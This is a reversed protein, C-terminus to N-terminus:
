PQWLSRQVAPSLVVEGRHVREFNDLLEALDDDKHLYGCAGADLAASTYEERVHGSFMVVKTGPCTEGLRRVLGFTEVGPMDVDMLVVDPCVERIRAELGSADHVWGAWTFRNDMALLRPLADALISNDDVLLISIAM